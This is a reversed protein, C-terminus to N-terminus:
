RRELCAKAGQVFGAEYTYGQLREILTRKMLEAGLGFAFLSWLAIAGWRLFKM